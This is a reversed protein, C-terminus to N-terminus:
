GRVMSLPTTGSSEKPLALDALMRMTWTAQGSGAEPKQCALAILQAEVEGTIKPPRGQRPLEEMAGKLGGSAYRQALQSVTNVSLDVEEAVEPGGRKEGRSRDLLLLAKARKVRRKGARLEEVIKELVGREEAKLYVRAAKAM